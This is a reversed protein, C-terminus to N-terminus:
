LHRVFASPHGEDCRDATLGRERISSRMPRSWVNYPFKGFRCFRLALFVELFLLTRVAAHLAVSPADALPCVLIGVVGVTTKENAKSFTLSKPFTTSSIYRLRTPNLSFQPASLSLVRGHMTGAHHDCVAM